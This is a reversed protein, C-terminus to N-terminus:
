LVVAVVLLVFALVVAAISMSVVFFRAILAALELFPRNSM